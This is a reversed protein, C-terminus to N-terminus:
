DGICGRYGLHYIVRKMTALSRRDAANSDCADPSKFPAYSDPPPPPPPLLARSVSEGLDVEFGDQHTM